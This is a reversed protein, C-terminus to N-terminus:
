AVSDDKEQQGWTGRADAFPYALTYFMKDYLYMGNWLSIFIHWDVMNYSVFLVSRSLSSEDPYM